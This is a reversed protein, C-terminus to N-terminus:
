NERVIGRVIEDLIKKLGKSAIWEKEGSYSVAIRLTDRGENVILIKLEDKANKFKYEM